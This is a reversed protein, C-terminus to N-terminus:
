LLLSKSSQFHIHSSLLSVSCASVFLCVFLIITSVRSLVPSDELHLGGVEVLAPVLPRVENISFHSNSLVLSYNQALSELKPGPGFLRDAIVQFLFFQDTVLTFLLKDNKVVDLIVIYSSVQSPIQSKYRYLVKATIVAMTNAFREWLSMRQGFGVMYSPVYATADPNGLQDNVWPLPVSSLFGVVPAGYKKGLPLFCDSGFVEVIVLDFTEMSNFLAKVAPVKAVNECADVCEQM